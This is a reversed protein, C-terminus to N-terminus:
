SYAPTWLWWLRATAPSLARARRGPTCRSGGGSLLAPIGQRARQEHEFGVELAYVGVQISLPRGPTADPTAAIAVEM